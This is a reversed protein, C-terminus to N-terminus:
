QFCHPLHWQHDLQYVPLVSHALLLYPFHYLQLNLSNIVILWSSMTRAWYFSGSRRVPSLIFPPGFLGGFCTSSRAVIRVHLVAICMLYKYIQWKDVRRRFLAWCFNQNITNQRLQKIHFCFLLISLVKM